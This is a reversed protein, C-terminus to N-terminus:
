SLGGSRVNSSSRLATWAPGTNSAFGEAVRAEAAKAALDIWVERDNVTVQPNTGAPANMVNVTIGGGVQDSPTVSGGRAPLLYQSGNGATYMEPRGDENVRYLSNASVSGGYRRAGALPAMAIAPAGLAAAAAGAAAAAAPALGPGTIPIAATSAFASAAALSSTVAVQASVAGTYAAANAAKTALMAADATKALLANKIYQLGVQVLASVAENLVVNGLNRMADSASMTGNLLGTIASSATGALSNLSGMLFQNAAGQAVFEAEILAQRQQRFQSALETKKQEAFTAGDVGAQAMQQEYYQVLSLKQQYERELQALPNLSALQQRIAIQADVSAKAERLEMEKRTIAGQQYDAQAKRIAEQRMLDIKTLEDTAATIALDASAQAERDSLKERELQAQAKAKTRAREAESATAIGLRESADARRLAEAEIMAVKQDADRTLEIQLDAVQRLTQEELKARERAYKKQIEVRAKAYIEQNNKDEAARRKNEELAKQEEANIKALAQANEAVLGQYYAQAAATKAALKRAEDEDKPAKLKSPADGTPTFGRQEKAQQAWERRMREGALETRALTKADEADMIKRRREGDERVADTIAQYEPSNFAKWAAKTGFPDTISRGGKAAEQLLNLQAAVAGIESGVGQFAFLVNRGFVSVAQWTVDLADVVYSLFLKTEESWGQIAKNRGLKDAETTVGAMQGTLNDLVQSLGQAAGALAASKGSADDMKQNLRAAADQVLQFAGSVTQPFKAFDANIREASKTLAAVVVDATLKGQEGLKKLEGVPKGIGDALQRMLYPANELLSRLEDGQLKGSGLAQGFQLMANKAEVASAGSVRIAKALLDVLNLTDNQTGGMQILSQNLRNFVDVNGEVATQTTRSIQVLRNMAQTGKEVSGAAVEVRASLLRMEDAAEAAKVAALAAALLKAALAIANFNAALKDGADGTAKLSRQVQQQDRLLQGTELRVDYYIGGVQEAM